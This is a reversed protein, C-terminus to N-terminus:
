EPLQAEYIQGMEPAILYLKKSQGDVAFDFYTPKDEPIQYIAAINGDQNVRVMKRPYGEFPSWLLFTEGNVVKMNTIYKFSPVVGTPAEKAKEITDEFIADNVDLDIAVEWLLKGDPTYKQLRSHADLFVYLYDGDFHMTVQNNYMPPIEGSALAQRDEELPGSTYEKGMAEGFYETTDNELDTLKVLSGVKGMSGAYYTDEEKVTPTSSFPNEKYRYSQVFDGSYDFQVIRRLEADVVNVYNQSQTLYRPRQFEGPGKGEGGFRRQYSGEDDFVLVENLKADLVAIENEPLTEISVPRVPGSENFDVLLEINEIEIPEIEDTSENTEKQCSTILFLAALLFICSYSYYYKM